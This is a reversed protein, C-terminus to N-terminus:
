GRARAAAAGSRRRPPVRDGLAPQRDGGARRGPAGAPRRAPDAGGARRQGVVPAAAPHREHEGHLLPVRRARRPRAPDLTAAARAAVRLLRHPPRARPRAGQDHERRGGPRRRRHPELRHQLRGLRHHPDRPRAGAAHPLQPYGRPPGPVLPTEVHCLAIDARRLLPRLGRLLPAFRYGAGGALARARAVVPLHPLLDGSVAVTLRVARPRPEAPPAPAPSPAPSVTATATPAGASRPTAPDDGCAAAFLAACWAPSRPSRACRRLIPSSTPTM